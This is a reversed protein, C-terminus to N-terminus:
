LRFTPIYFKKLLFKSRCLYTFGSYGSCGMWGQPSLLANVGLSAPSCTVYKMAKLIEYDDDQQM